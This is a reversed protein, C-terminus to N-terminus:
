GADFYDGDVRPLRLVRYHTVGVGNDIMLSTLRAGDVLVLTESIQEAYQKADRTFSSTTIFVGKRAKRGALAGFFAQIEPRGISHQWRKAQVYVKEFGLRDLSIIGDIGGDGAAGVHELDDSSTGYGLAHLLDLVLEEFFAPPASLIRDLLDAAVAHHLEELAADIREDPSPQMAAQAVEAGDFAADHEEAETHRDARSQRYERRIRKTAEADFQDPFAALLARGRDTIRWIGPGGSEVYGAAKLQSLGWGSRHRYRLHPLNALRATRQAKTLGLLAPMAEHINGRRDGDPHAALHRLIAHFFAGQHPLEIKV